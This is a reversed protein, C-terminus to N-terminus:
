RRMLPAYWSGFDPDTPEGVDYGGFAWSNNTVEAVASAYQLVEVFTSFPVSGFTVKVGIIHANPAIGIPLGNAGSDGILGSTTTGHFGGSPEAINILSGIGFNRSLAYSFDGYLTTSVPDFGDDILAVSTGLGTSFRWAATVNSGYVPTARYTYGGLQDEVYGSPTIGASAVSDDSARSPADAPAAASAIALPDTGPDYPGSFPPTAAPIAPAPRGATDRYGCGWDGHRRAPM